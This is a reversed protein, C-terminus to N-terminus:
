PDDNCEYLDYMIGLPPKPVNQYVCDSGVDWYTQWCVERLQLMKPNYFIACLNWSFM